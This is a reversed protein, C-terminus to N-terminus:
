RAHRSMGFAASGTVLKRCSDRRLKTTELLCYLCHLCSSHENPHMWVSVGEAATVHHSDPLFQTPRPIRCFSKDVLTRWVVPRWYAIAASDPFYMCHRKWNQKTPEPLQCPSKLVLCGHENKLLICFKGGISYASIWAKRSCPFWNSPLCDTDASMRRGSGWAYKEWISDLVLCPAALHFWHRSYDCQVLM